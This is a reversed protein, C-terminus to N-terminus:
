LFCSGNKNCKLCSPSRQNDLPLLEADDYTTTLSKSLLCCVTIGNPTVGLGYMGNPLRVVAIEYGKKCTM